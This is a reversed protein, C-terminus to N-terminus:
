LIFALRSGGGIQSQPPPSPQCTNTLINPDVLRYFLSFFIPYCLSSLMTKLAFSKGLFILGLLFLSWTLISIYADISIEFPLLNDFVIALGSVGGTVLDFPVIFIATGFALIATVFLVIICNKFTNVLKKKNLM